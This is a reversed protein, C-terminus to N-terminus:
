RFIKRILLNESLKRRQKLEHHQKREAKKILRAIESVAKKISINDIVAVGNRKAEAVFYEQLHRIKQFNAMKYQSRLESQEELQKYHQLEDPVNLVIKISEEDANHQSIKCVLTAGELIVNQDEKQFRSIIANVCPIVLKSQNEYAWIVPDVGKPAYRVALIASTHFWPCDVKSVFTRAVERIIDTGFCQYSPFKRALRHAISTKGSGPAGTILISIMDRGALIEM